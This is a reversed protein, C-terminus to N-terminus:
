NAGPSANVLSTSTQCRQSKDFIFPRRWPHNAPPKWSIKAGSLAIVPMKIKAPRGPLLIFNLLKNRLSLFIQGNIREEIRIREKPRVLAPQQKALQYWAGKFKVTFDNNVTRQSHVSCIQELNDKEYKTLPKHLNGQKAPKVSFQSQFRPLFVQNAFQNAQSITQIGALRLEKVLRDQLTDFLREVRGKAQPSYAHIVKISLDRMAREFQTLCNPDDFVSKQNQKYTSHRDLYISLPKGKNELYEKWFAFANKVGEWDVFELQTPKGTADDISALLCCEPARDEFWKFYSGDFQEMEGYHEKRVRWSRYEKCRKRSHPQWLGWDTMKQRLTEKNVKLQHLELLKESAFTPGFDYYKERIIAEISQTIPEPLKRNSARGRNKHVIGQTGYQKVQSKLNRIQRVSLGIQRSAETGNIEKGLLRKIIEYRSLEKPTMTIIEQTM